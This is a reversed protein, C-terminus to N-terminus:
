ANFSFRLMKYQTVTKWSLSVVLTIFVLGGSFSFDTKDTFELYNYTWSLVPNTEVLDPSGLVTLFPLISAVGMVDLLSMILIMVLLIFTEKREEISLLSWLKKFKM